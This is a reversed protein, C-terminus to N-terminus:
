SRYEFLAQGGDAFEGAAQACLGIRFSARISQASGPGALIKIWAGNDDNYLPHSPTPLPANAHSLLFLPNPGRHSNSVLTHFIFDAKSALSGGSVTINVLGSYVVGGAHAESGAALATAAGAAAYSAWRGVNVHATLRSKKSM